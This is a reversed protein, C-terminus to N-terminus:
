LFGLKQFCQYWSISADQLLEKKALFSLFIHQFHFFKQFSFSSLFFHNDNSKEWKPSGRKGVATRTGTGTRSGRCKPPESRQERHRQITWTGERRRVM